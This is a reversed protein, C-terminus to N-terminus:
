QLVHTLRFSHCIEHLRQLNFYFLYCWLFPTMDLSKLRQLSWYILGIYLREIVFQVLAYHVLLMDSGYTISMDSPISRSKFDHDCVAIQLHLDYIFLVWLKM